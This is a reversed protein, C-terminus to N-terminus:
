NFNKIMRKITHVVTCLKIYEIVIAKNTIGRNACKAYVIVIVLFNNLLDKYRNIEIFM